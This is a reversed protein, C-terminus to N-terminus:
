ARTNRPPRGGGVGKGPRRKIWREVTAERWVPTRGFVEDPPPMDGPRSADDRRRREAVQHYNRLSRYGIGIRDAIDQMTLFKSAAMGMMNRSGPRGRDRVKKNARTEKSVGINNM